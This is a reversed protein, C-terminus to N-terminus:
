VYDINFLIKYVLDKSPANDRAWKDLEDLNDLVQDPEGKTCILVTLMDLDEGDPDEYVQLKVVSKPFLQQIVASAELLYAESGNLALLHKIVKKPSRVIYHKGLESFNANSAYEVFMRPIVPLKIVPVGEESRFGQEAEWDVVPLSSPSVFVRESEDILVAMM